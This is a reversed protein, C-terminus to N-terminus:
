SLRRRRAPPTAGAIPEPPNNTKLAPKADDGLAVRDFEANDAESGLDAVHREDKLADPDLRPIPTDSM